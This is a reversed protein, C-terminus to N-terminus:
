ELIRKIIRLSHSYANTERNFIGHHDLKDIRVKGSSHIIEAPADSEKVIIGVHIIRGESNEFFALDGSRSEDVFLVSEGQEAQQWADRQLSIGVLRFVIQTFGSCDIGMCTRGGWLYPAGLFMRAFETISSAPPLLPTTALAQVSSKSNVYSGAPFIVEPSDTHVALLSRVLQQEISEDSHQHEVLQKKDVWGEYGDHSLRVLVWKDTEDLVEMTEGYLIQNVMESKDSAEKRMPVIALPCIMKKMM